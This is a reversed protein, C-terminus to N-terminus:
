RVISRIVKLILRLKGSDAEKLLNSIDKTIEQDSKKHHSFEFFDKLETKLAKAIESLTDMSPFSRGVEIRSLHKPDINIIEALKEQSLGRLKRLEKIRAGLLKRTTEMSAEM